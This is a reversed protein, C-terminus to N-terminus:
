ASHYVIPADSPIASHPWHQDLQKGTLTPANTAAKDAKDWSGTKRHKM